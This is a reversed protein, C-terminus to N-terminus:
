AFLWIFQDVFKSAQIMEMPMFYSIIVAFIHCLLDNIFHVFAVFCPHRFIDM